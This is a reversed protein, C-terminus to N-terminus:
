LALEVPAQAGRDGLDLVVVAPLPRGEGGGEGGGGLVQDVRRAVAGLAEDELTMRLSRAELAPHGRLLVQVVSGASDAVLIGEPRIRRTSSAMRATKLSAM